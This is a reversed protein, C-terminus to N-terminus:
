LRIRITLASKQLNTLESVPFNAKISRSGAIVVILVIADFSGLSQGCGDTAVSLGTVVPLRCFLVRAPDQSPPFSALAQRSVQPRAPWPWPRGACLSEEPLPPRRYLRFIGTSRHGGKGETVHPNGLMREGNKPISGNMSDKPRQFSKWLLNIPSISRARDLRTGSRYTTRVPSRAYTAM